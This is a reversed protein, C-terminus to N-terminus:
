HRRRVAHEQAVTAALYDATATPYFRDPSFETVDIGTKGDAVFEALLLGAVPNYAFGGSHFACGLYLSPLQAVPGLIPEGDMSFCILGVKETEWTTQGLAPILPTLNTTLDHQVSEPADLSPMQFDLSDVRHEKRTATEGGALLRNGPEPRIYGGQPNANIAPINVPAPMPTTVYRQHVFAKMPISIGLGDLVRHTWAHATCIVVDAALEGDLTTVSVVRGGREVIGTVPVGERIEVGLERCRQALAPVYAEPESYGGLPDHLGIIDDALTLAPWRAHLDTANLIEYPTDLRDYLPLLAEREPWAPPDFLNLCGVDHFRYGPLDDSLERYLDLSIQRARVGTETWLLSPIIGGARSSSGAGVSDKELLIIRGFHKRALQYATSLGIVGGGIIIATASSM